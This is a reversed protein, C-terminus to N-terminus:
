AVEIELRQKNSDAYATLSFHTVVLDGTEIQASLNRLEEAIGMALATPPLPESKPFQAAINQLQDIINQGM